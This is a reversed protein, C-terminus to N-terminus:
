LRFNLSTYFSRGPLPFGSVDATRRDTLNYGEITLSLGEVVPKIVLIMNHLDRSGAERTNYRDLFNSGMHDFPWALSWKSRFYEVTLSAKHVPRGPLKKGNYYPIPGIDRSDLWAYNGSIMFGAPFKGSSSIEIGRVRAKGINQPRVTSQSNPFFLILDDTENYIYTTELFFENIFGTNEPTFIVGIDRNFGSEPSLGSEGTM